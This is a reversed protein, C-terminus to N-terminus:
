SPVARSRSAAGPSRWGCWGAAFDFLGGAVDDAMRDGDQAGGAGVGADVGHALHGGSGRFAAEVGVAEAFGDVAAQWGVDEDARHLFDGSSEVDAGGPWVSGSGSRPWGLVAGDEIAVVDVVEVALEVERGHLGGAFVEDAGM